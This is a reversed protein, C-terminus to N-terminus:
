GTMTVLKDSDGVHWQWRYEVDVFGSGRVHIYFGDGFWTCWEDVMYMLRYWVTYRLWTCWGIEVMCWFRYCNTWWGHVLVKVLGCMLWACFGESFWADVMYRLCTGYWEHYAKVLWWLWTGIYELYAGTIFSLLYVEVLMYWVDLTHRLAYVLLWLSMGWAHEEIYGIHLRM